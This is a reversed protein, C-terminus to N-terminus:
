LHGLYEQLILVAALKDVREKERRKKKPLGSNFLIERARRSSGFEDQWDIILDPFQKALKRSFGLAHGHLNTATGDKHRSEGIVVKGVPERSFYDALYDMLDATAVTDLGSVIIQLPDTVALGTKKLGFDISLIRNV